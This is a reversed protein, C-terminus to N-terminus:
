CHIVGCALRRKFEKGGTHGCGSKFSFGCEMMNTILTYCMYYAKAVIDVASVTKGNVTVISASENSLWVWANCQHCPGNLSWRPLLAFYMFHRKIQQKLVALIALWVKSKKAPSM